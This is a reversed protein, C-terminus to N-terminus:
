SKGEEETLPSVNTARHVSTVDSGLASKRPFSLCIAAIDCRLAVDGHRWLRNKAPHFCFPGLIM